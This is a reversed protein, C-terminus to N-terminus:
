SAGSMNAAAPTPEGAGQRGRVVMDGPKLDGKTVEVMDEDALGLQVSVRTLANGHKLWVANRKFGAKQAAQAATAPPSFRLAAEPVRL